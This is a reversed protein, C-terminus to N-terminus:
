AVLIAYHSPLVGFRKQFCKSFYSSSTFGTAYAVEAIHREGKEMLHLAQQLRFEKIFDNPALSTLSVMKRYLQSKSTHMAKTLLRINLESHHYQQEMFAILRNLFTEDTASIVKVPLRSKSLSLGEDRCWDKVSSTVLINGDNAAVSLRKAVKLAEGFLDKNKTVPMGANLVIQLQLANASIDHMAISKQVEVASTIAKTPSVFSFLFCSGTHEVGTGDFRGTTIRLQNTAINIVKNANADNCKELVVAAGKLTVLMLTRFASEQIAPLGSSNDAKAIEPDTVRGLFSEVLHPNVEIIQHPVLGHAHNHMAEVSAEDPAEVLCFATRRREDFWYTLARCGYQDQIQLDKAHAEAVDKATVQPLNHRDMYIPM